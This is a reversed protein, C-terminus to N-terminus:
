FLNLYLKSKLPTKKLVVKFTTQGCITEKKVFCMSPLISYWVLKEKSPDLQQQNPFQDWVDIPKSKVESLHGDVQTPFYM